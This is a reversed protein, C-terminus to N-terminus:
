LFTVNISVDVYNNDKGMDNFCLEFSRDDIRKAFFADPKWAGDQQYDVKFYYPMVAGETNKLQYTAGNSHAQSDFTAIVSAPNTGNKGIQVLHLLHGAFTIQLEVAQDPKLPLFYYSM